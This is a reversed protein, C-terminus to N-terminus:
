QAQAVRVPHVQRVLAVQHIVLLALMAELLLIQDEVQQVLMVLLDVQGVQDVMPHTPVQLVLLVLVM